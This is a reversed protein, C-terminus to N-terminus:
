RKFCENCKYPLRRNICYSVGGAIQPSPLSVADLNIPFDVQVDEVSPFNQHSGNGGNWRLFYYTDNHIFADRLLVSRSFM